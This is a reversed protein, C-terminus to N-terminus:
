LIGMNLLQQFINHLHAHTFGVFFHFFNIWPALVFDCNKFFSQEIYM